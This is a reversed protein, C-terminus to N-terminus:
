SLGTKIAERYANREAKDMKRGTGVCAPCFYSVSEYEGLTTEVEELVHGRACHPCDTPVESVEGEPQRIYKREIM